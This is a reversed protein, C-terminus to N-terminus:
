EREAESIEKLHGYFTVDGGKLASYPRKQTLKFVYTDECLEKYQSIDYSEDMLKYLDYLHPNTYSVDDIMARFLTVSDYGLRILMNQLFYDIISNHEGYYKCMAEFVFGFLPNGQQGYMIFSGWQCRSILQGWVNPDDIQNLKVSWFSSEWAVTSEFGSEVWISADIWLGGNQYILAQRLVDSFQTIPIHEQEMKDVVVHPITAYEKYNDKTILTLKYNSPLSARLHGYCMKCFEPMSEYGQWWCVWVNGSPVGQSFSVSSYKKILDNCYSKLYKYIIDIYKDYQKTQRYYCYKATFGIGFDAILAFIKNIRKNM